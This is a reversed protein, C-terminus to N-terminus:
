VQGFKIGFRPAPTILKRDKGLDSPDRFVLRWDDMFVKRLPHKKSVKEGVRKIAHFLDLKVKLEFGFVKTIKKAM